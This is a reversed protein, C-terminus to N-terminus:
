CCGPSGVYYNIYVTNIMCLCTALFKQETVLNTVKHAFHGGEAVTDRPLYQFDNDSKKGLGVADLTLMIFANKTCAPNNQHKWLRNLGSQGLSGMVAREKKKNCSQGITALLWVSWVLLDWAFLFPIRMLNTAESGSSLM